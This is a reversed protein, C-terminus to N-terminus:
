RPISMAAETPSSTRAGAGPLTTNAPGTAPVLQILRRTAGPTSTVRPGTSPGGSVASASCTRRRAGTPCRPGPWATGGAPEGGTPCPPEPGAPGDAPRILGPPPAVRCRLTRTLPTYTSGSAYRTSRGLGRSAGNSAGPPRGPPQDPSDHPRRFAKLSSRVAQMSATTPDRGRLAPGPQLSTTATVPYTHSWAGVIAPLLQIGDQDIVEARLRAELTDIDVDEPRVAGLRQLFPLLSRVTEAVYAYGPWNPGGGLPVDRRLQPAPLDAELLTTFLKLGMEPDPGPTGPPPTTWRMLQDHLPGTPYARAPSSLDIEQFAVIGGPRLWRRAHRLLAAPNPTYQLVWRGVVADVTGELELRMVDGAHFVVTTWGAARVRARAM